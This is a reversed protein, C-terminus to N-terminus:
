IAERRSMRGLFEVERTAVQCLERARALELRVEGVLDVSSLIPHEAGLRRRVLHEMLGELVNPFSSYYKMDAHANSGLRLGWGHPDALIHPFHPAVPGLKAVLRWGHKM